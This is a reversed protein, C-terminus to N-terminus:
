VEKKYPSPDLVKCFLDCMDNWQLPPSEYCNSIGAVLQHGMVRCISQLVDVCKIANM